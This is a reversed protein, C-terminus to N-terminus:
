HMWMRLYNHSISEQFLFIDRDIESMHHTKSFIRFKIYFNCIAALNDMGHFFQNRDCVFVQYLHSLPSSTHFTGVSYNHFRFFYSIIKRNFYFLLHLQDCPPLPLCFILFYCVFDQPHTLSRM